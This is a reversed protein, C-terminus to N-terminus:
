IGIGAQLFRLPICAILSGVNRWNVTMCKKCIIWVKSDMFSIGEAEDTQYQYPREIQEWKHECM